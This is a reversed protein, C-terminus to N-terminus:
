HQLWRTIQTFSFFFHVWLALFLGELGRVPVESPSSPEASFPPSLCGKGYM